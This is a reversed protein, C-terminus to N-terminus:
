AGAVLVLVLLNLVFAGLTVGIWAITNAPGASRITEEITENVAQEVEKRRKEMSKTQASTM